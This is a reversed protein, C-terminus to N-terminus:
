FRAPSFASLDVGPDQGLALRAVAEGVLPGLLIGNRFLGAAHILGPVGGPGIIPLADPTGPRLGAWTQAVAVEALQPVIEVAIALVRQLAGATVSKDFGAREATSGALLRGDARPVVYGRPSCVVHRVVPPALDFAAIHGRVPEVPPPAPDGPLLGAWAGAANIVVPAAIRERGADVGAVRGGALVLATVPRGSLLAAGRAVASAALARLLRVNDLSRDEKYYLAARVAPSLNPEADRVEAAGLHDVHLGRARQWGARALLAAEDAADFAIELAGRPSREVGIGTEAELEGALAAHRERARLALDFLPSDEAADVQASLMGAAAASAEDGVRGREVVIVRAGSSALARAAALGVIGAGVVVVDASAGPM